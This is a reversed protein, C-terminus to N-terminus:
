GDHGRRMSVSEDLEALNTGAVDPQRVEDSGDTVVIAFSLPVLALEEVSSDPHRTGITEVHRPM